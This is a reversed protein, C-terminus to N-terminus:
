TLEEREVHRAIDGAFGVRGTPTDRCPTGRLFKEMAHRAEAETLGSPEHINRNSVRKWHRGSGWTSPNGRKSRLCGCPSWTRNTLRVYILQADSGEPCMWRFSQCICCYFYWDSDNM